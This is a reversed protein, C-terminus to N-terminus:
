LHLQAFKQQWSYGKMLFSSLQLFCGLRNSNQNIQKQKIIRQLYICLNKNACESFFRVLQDFQSFCNSSDQLGADSGIIGEARNLDRSLTFSSPAKVGELPTITLCCGTQLEVPLM